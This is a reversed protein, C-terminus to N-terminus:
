DQALVQVVRKKGKWVLAPGELVHNPDAIKTDDVRVGGQKVMRRAEGKSKTLGAAVLVLLNRQRLVRQSQAHTYSIEM